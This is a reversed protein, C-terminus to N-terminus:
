FSVLYRYAPLTLFEEFNDATVLGVFLDIAKDFTAQWPSHAAIEQRLAAIEEDLIAQFLSRDVTRGDELAANHHLWQWIQARCIESTAADEM